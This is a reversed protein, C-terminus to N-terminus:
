CEPNETTEKQKLRVAEGDAEHICITTDEYLTQDNINKRGELVFIKFFKM